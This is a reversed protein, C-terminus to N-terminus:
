DLFHRVIIQLVKRSRLMGRHTVNSLVHCRAGPLIASSGPMIHWDIRTRVCCAHLTSPSSQAALKRLFESGPRMEHAGRGWALYAVWTGFHPTGLFVSRRVPSPEQKDDHEKVLYYRLALGGMSHAVVDVSVAGTSRRLETIAARLERAHDLNSGFPDEFECIRVRDEPWGNQVLGRELRRLVRARDKWGPLILVHVVPTRENL